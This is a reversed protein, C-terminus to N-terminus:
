QLDQQQLSFIVFLPLLYVGEPTSSWQGSGHRRRLSADSDMMDNYNLPNHVGV